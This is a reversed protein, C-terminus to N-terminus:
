KQLLKNARETAKVVAKILTVRLGGDELEMLGDITSGAPTTVQDKLKAPHEGTVLVTKAAGLVTQAALEISVERPLGMKVGGDTLAEIILYVYAPGSGSLGTVADMYQEDLVLARG